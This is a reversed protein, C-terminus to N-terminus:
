VKIGAHILLWMGLWRSIFNNIWELVEITCGNFNPFPYTIEDWVNHYICNSIMSPSFNIWTLLLAGPGSYVVHYHYAVNM